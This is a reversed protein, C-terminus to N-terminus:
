KWAREESGPEAEEEHITKGVPLRLDSELGAEALAHQLLLVSATWSEVHQAALAQAEQVLVERHYGQAAVEARQLCEGCITYGKETPPVDAVGFGGGCVEETADVVEPPVEPQPPPHGQAGTVEASSSEVQAPPLPPAVKTAVGPHIAQPAEPAVPLNPSAGSAEQPPRPSAEEPVACPHLPEEVREALPLTEREQSAVAESQMAHVEVAAEAAESAGAAPEATEAAEPLVGDTTLTAEEDLFSVSGPQSRRWMWPTEPYNAKYFLGLLVCCVLVSSLMGLVVEVAPQSCSWLFLQAIPYLFHYYNVKQLLGEALLRVEDEAIHGVHDEFFLAEFNSLQRRM